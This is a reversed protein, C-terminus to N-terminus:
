IVAHSDEPQWDQINGLSLILMSHISVTLDPACLLIEISFGQHHNKLHEWGHVPTVATILNTWSMSEKEQSRSWAVHWSMSLMFRHTGCLQLQITVSASGRREIFKSLTNWAGVKGLHQGARPSPIATVVLRRNQGFSVNSWLHSKGCSCQSSAQVFSTHGPHFSISKFKKWMVEEGCPNGMEKMELWVGGM